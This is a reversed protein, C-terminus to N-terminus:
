HQVQIKRIFKQGDFNLTVFYIGDSYHSVPISIKTRELYIDHDIVRGSIDSISIVVDVTRSFLFNIEKQSPNPYITFDDGDLDQYPIFIQQTQQCGHKDIVSITYNTNCLYNLLGSDSTTAFNAPEAQFSYPPTGGQATIQVEGHCDGYTSNLINTQLTLPAAASIQVIKSGTCGRADSATLTYTGLPLNPIIRNEHDVNFNPEISYIFDNEPLLIAGDNTGTCQETELQLNELQLNNKFGVKVTSTDICGDETKAYVTYIGQDIYEFYPLTIWDINNLSFYTALYPSNPILSIWIAGDVQYCSTPVSKITDFFDPITDKIEFNISDSCYNEDTVSCTFTGPPLHYIHAGNQTGFTTHYTFLGTGGNANLFVQGNALSCISPIKNLISLSIKSPELITFVADLSCSTTDSIHVTYTGACLNSFTNGNLTGLSPSLSLTYPGVTGTPNITAKGKCTGFCSDMYTNSVAQIPSLVVIKEACFGFTDSSTLTYTGQCLGNFVGTQNSQVSFSDKLEFNQFPFLNNNIATISGNCVNCTPNVTQVYTNLPNNPIFENFTYICGLSDTLTIQYTSDKCFGSYVSDNSKFINTSPSFTYVSPRNTKSPIMILKNDCLTNSSCTSSLTYAGPYAQTLFYRKSNQCTTLTDIATLSYNSHSLNIFHGTSIQQAGAPM